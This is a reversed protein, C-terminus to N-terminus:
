CIALRLEFRSLRLHGAASEALARAVDAAHEADRPKRSLALRRWANVQYTTFNSRMM